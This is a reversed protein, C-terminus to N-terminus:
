EKHFQMSKWDQLQSDDPEDQLNEKKIQKKFNIEFSELPDEADDLFISNAITTKSNSEIDGTRFKDNLEGKEKTNIESDYIGMVSDDKNNNEHEGLVYLLKEEVVSDKVLVLAFNVKYGDKELTIMGNEDSDESVYKGIFRWNLLAMKLPTMAIM